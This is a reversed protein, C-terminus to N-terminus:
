NQNKKKSRPVAVQYGLAILCLGAVPVISYNYIAWTALETSDICSGIGGISPCQVHSLNLLYGTALTALLAITLTGVLGITAFYVKSYSRIRNAVNVFVSVAFGTVVLLAVLTLMDSSATQLLLWLSLISTVAMSITAVAVVTTSPIIYDHNPGLKNTM